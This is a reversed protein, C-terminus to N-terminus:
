SKPQSAGKIDRPSDRRRTLQDPPLCCKRGAIMDAIDMAYWYDIRSQEGGDGQAAISQELLVTRQDKPLAPSVFVFHRQYSGPDAGDFM